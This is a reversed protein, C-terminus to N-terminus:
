RSHSPATSVSRDQGTSWEWGAVCLEHQLEYDGFRRSVGTPWENANAAGPHTSGANGTTASPGVSVTREFQPDQDRPTTADELLGADAAIPEGSADLAPPTYATLEKLAALCDPCSDVHPKLTESEAETLRGTLLRELQEPSPCTKM